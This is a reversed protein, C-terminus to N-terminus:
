PKLFHGLTTNKYFENQNFLIGWFRKINKMTISMTAMVMKLGQHEHLSFKISTRSRKISSTYQVTTRKLSFDENLVGLYKPELIETSSSRNSSILYFNENQNFNQSFYRKYVQFHGFQRTTSDKYQLINSITMQWIHRFVTGNLRM